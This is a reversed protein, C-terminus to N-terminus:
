TMCVDFRSTAAEPSSFVSDCFVCLDSLGSCNCTRGSSWARPLTSSCDSCTSFARGISPQAQSPLFPTHYLKIVFNRQSPARPEVCSTVYSPVIFPQTEEEKGKDSNDMLQHPHMMRQTISCKALTSKRTSLSVSLSHVNTSTIYIDQNYM